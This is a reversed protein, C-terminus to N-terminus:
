IPSLSELKWSVSPLRPINLHCHLPVLCVGAICERFLDSFKWPFLDGKLPHVFTHRCQHRYQLNRI